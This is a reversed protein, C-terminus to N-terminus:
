GLDGGQDILEKQEQTLILKKGQIDTGAAAYYLQASYEKEEEADSKTAFINTTLGICFLIITKKAYKNKVIMINYYLM